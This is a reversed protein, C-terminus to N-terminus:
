TTLLTEKKIQYLYSYFRFGGFLHRMFKHKIHIKQKEHKEVKKPERRHLQVMALATGPAPHLPPTSGRLLDAALLRVLCVGMNYEIREKSGMEDASLPNKTIYEILM